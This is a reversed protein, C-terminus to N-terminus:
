DQVNAVVGCLSRLEKINIPENMFNPESMIRLAKILLIKDKIIEKSLM